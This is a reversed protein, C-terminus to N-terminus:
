YLVVCGGKETKGLNKKFRLVCCVQHTLIIYKYKALARDGKGWLVAPWPGSNRGWWGAWFNVGELCKMTPVTECNCRGLDLPLTWARPNKQILNGEKHIPSVRCGSLSCFGMKWTWSLTSNDQSKPKPAPPFFLPGASLSPGGGVRKRVGTAPQLRTLHTRGCGMEPSTTNHFLSIHASLWSIHDFSHPPTSFKNYNHLTSLPGRWASVHM